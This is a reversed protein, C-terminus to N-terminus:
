EVQVYECDFDDPNDRRHPGQPGDKSGCWKSCFRLCLVDKVKGSVKSMLIHLWEVKGLVAFDQEVEHFLTEADRHTIIGEELFEEIQDEQMHLIWRATQKSVQLTVISPDIAALFEKAKHVIMRSEQVVLAEEPTDITETDGLYYPIRKQAYHHADIFTTLLYVVQAERYDKLSKAIRETQEAQHVGMTSASRKRKMRQRKTSGVSSNDDPLSGHFSGAHVAAAGINDPTHKLHEFLDKHHAEIVDWDQLGPTDTTELAVDISNLLILAASSKRPLKGSNIQRWYSVRVVELFARRIHTLLENMITPRVFSDPVVHSGEEDVELSHMHHMSPSPPAVPPRDQSALNLGSNDRSLGMMSMDRSMRGIEFREVEKIEPFIQGAASTSPAAPASGEQSPPVPSSPAAEVLGASHLPATGQPSSVEPLKMPSFMDIHDHAAHANVSSQLEPIDEISLNGPAKLISCYKSVLFPNISDPRSKQLQELLHMAKLRIRKKVFHFMIRTELTNTSDLLGLRDLVWGSTTANVLLTLGAVGGVLFFVKHSNDESINTDGSETSSVLSLALATSVAGRLGGWTAFVADNVTLVKGLSPNSLAPFFLAMMAGRIVFMFVYIVFIYFIDVPKVFKQTRSGIILGALMFILTNGIWEFAAWVSHITEPRLFLPVAFRSLVLAAACCSLVGSVGVYEAMFFSLYACVITIALQITTDEEKMRRNALSLCMTSALGFAFGMLPSIVIVRVFYIFVESATFMYGPPNDSKLLSYLLNYVVLATGDNMLAEGIILYTLRNSAGATKLLAVVAVPDTACLITGFVLCLTWDWGYPLTFKAAAAMVFAGFLAGPGALVAAPGVAGRVHHFNLMMAEGFLLAPLFMFLILEPEMNDWMEVSEKLVDHKGLLQFAFSCFAGTAFVVVTYPLVQAYRSLVYTIVAGIFFTLFLFVIMDQSEPKEHKASVSYTVVSLILGMLATTGRTGISTIKM